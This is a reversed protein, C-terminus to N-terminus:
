AAAVLGEQLRALDVVGHLGLADAPGADAADGHVGDVVGVAAAGVVEAAPLGRDGAACGGAALDALDCGAAGAHPPLGIAFRTMLLGPAARRLSRLAFATMSVRALFSNRYRPLVSPSSCAM